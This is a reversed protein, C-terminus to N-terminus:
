VQDAKKVTGNKWLCRDTSRVPLPKRTARLMLSNWATCTGPGAIQPQWAAASLSWYKECAYPKRTASLMLPTWATCTGPGVTRPHWAAASLSWYKECAHPKRTARLMTHNEHQAPVQILQKHIGLLPLRHGACCCAGAASLRHVPSNNVGSVNEVPPTYNRPFAQRWLHGLPKFHTLDLRDGDWAPGTQTSKANQSWKRSTGWKIVVYPHACTPKYARTHVSVYLCMCAQVCVYVCVCCVCMCVCICARVCVCV